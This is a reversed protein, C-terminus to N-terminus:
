RIQSHSTSIYKSNDLFWRSVAADVLELLMSRRLDNKLVKKQCKDLFWRSVTGCSQLYDLISRRLDYEDSKSRRASNLFFFDTAFPPRKASESNPL